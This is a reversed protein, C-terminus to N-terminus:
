LLNTYNFANYISGAQIYSNVVVYNLSECFDIFVRDSKVVCYDALNRVHIKYKKKLYL